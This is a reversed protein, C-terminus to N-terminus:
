GINLGGQRGSMGQETGNIMNGMEELESQRKYDKAKVAAKMEDHWQDQSMGRTGSGPTVPISQEGSMNRFKALTRAGSATMMMNEIVGIDDESLQGGRELGDVWVFLGDVLAPGTKGLAKMEQDPDIPAPAHDNMSVLMDSMLNTALDKGVGYKKCVAAWSKLGPDDPTLGAFKDAEVPVKLEAFYGDASEPVEGGGPGKSRKLEGHAKELDQYSRTLADVNISKDKANWFKEALGKPRGDPETKAGDDGSGDGGDGGDKTGAGDSRKSFLGGLKAARGPSSKDGKGDGGSDGGGDGNSSGDGDGAGNGNDGDDDGSGGSGGENPPAMVPKPGIGTMAWAASSGLIGLREKM